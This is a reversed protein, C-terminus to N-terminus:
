RDVNGLGRPIPARLRPEHLPHHPRNSGQRRAPQRSIATEAGGLAELPRAATPRPPRTGPKGPHSTILQEVQQRPQPARRDAPGAEPRRMLRQQQQPQEAPVGSNAAGHGAVRLGLFRHACQDVFEPRAHGTGRSGPPPSRHREDVQFPLQPVQAIVRPGLNPRIRGLAPGPQGLAPRHASQPRVHLLQQCIRPSEGCGRPQQQVQMEGRAQARHDAIPHAQVQRHQLKGGARSYSRGAPAQPPGSEGLLYQTSVGVLAGHAPEVPRKATIGHPDLRRM